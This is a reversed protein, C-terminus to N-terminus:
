AAHHQLPEGHLHLLSQGTSPMGSFPQVPSQLQLAAPELCATPAAHGSQMDLLSSDAAQSLLSENPLQQQQQMPSVPQVISPLLPQQLAAQQPHATQPSLTAITPSFLQSLKRRLPSRHPQASQVTSEHSTAAAPSTAASSQCSPSAISGHRPSARQRPSHQAHQAQQASSSLHRNLDHGAEHANSHSEPQTVTGLLGLLGTQVHEQQGSGLLGGPAACQAALDSLLTAQDESVMRLMKSVPLPSSGPRDLLDIGTGPLLAGTPSGPPMATAVAFLQPLEVALPLPPPQATAVARQQLAEAVVSVPLHPSGDVGTSPQPSMVASVTRSSAWLQPSKVNASGSQLTAHDTDLSTPQPGVAAIIGETSDEDGITSGKHAFPSEHSSDVMDRELQLMDVHSSSSSSSSVLPQHQAGMASVSRGSSSSQSPQRSSSSSVAFPLSDDVANEQPESTSPRFHRSLLHSALEVADTGAMDSSLPDTQSHDAPLVASHTQHQQQLAVSDSSAPKRDSAAVHWSDPGFEAVSGQRLSDDDHSWGAHSLRDHLQLDLLMAPVPSQSKPHYALEAPILHGQFSDPFNDQEVPKDSRLRQMDSEEHTPELLDFSQLLQSSQTALQAVAATSQLGAIFTSMTM